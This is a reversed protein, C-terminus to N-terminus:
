KTDLGTGREKREVEGMRRENEKEMVQMMEDVNGKGELGWCGPDRLRFGLPRKVLGM